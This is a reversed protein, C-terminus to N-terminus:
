NGFKIALWLLPDYLIRNEPYCNIIRSHKELPIFQWHDCWIDYEDKTSEAPAWGFASNVGNYGHGRLLTITGNSNLAVEAYLANPYLYTVNPHSTIADFEAQTVYENHLVIVQRYKALQEPHKSVDEDTLVNSYGINKLTELGNRSSVFKMRDSVKKPVGVTLCENGCNDVYLSKCSGSAHDGHCYYDYFGHPQYAMMTFLPAIVVADSVPWALAMTFISITLGIVGTIIVLLIYSSKM